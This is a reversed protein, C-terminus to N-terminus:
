RVVKKRETKKEDRDWREAIKIIIKKKAFSKKKVAARLLLARLLNPGARRRIYRNTPDSQFDLTKIPVLVSPVHFRNGEIPSSFHFLFFGVFFFSSSSSLFRPGANLQWTDRTSVM